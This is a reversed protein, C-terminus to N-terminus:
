DAAGAADPATLGAMQESMQWLRRQEAEDYSVKSSPTAKSNAFYQGTVGELEPATAVYITTQAGKEPTRAFPSLLAMATKMYGPNGTKGFGTAVFGPHVANVTVGTGELRRALDYTFYVNALKTQSYAGFGKGSRGFTNWNIKAGKHADSSLNVIRAEGAQAATAELLPLLRLTLVFHSLHNVAFQIEYGDASREETMLMFGANNILMDLRDTGALVADALARVQALEGLDATVARVDADPVAQRIAALTADVKASSRGHVLVTAGMHALERATVEGIGSTAGTVLATKGSLM